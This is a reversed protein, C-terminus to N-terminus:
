SVKDLYSMSTMMTPVIPGHEWAVPRILCRGDSAPELVVFLEEREAADTVFAEKWRAIDGHAFSTAM